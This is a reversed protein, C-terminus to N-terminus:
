ITSHKVANFRPRWLIEGLDDSLKEAEEATIIGYKVADIAKLVRLYSSTRNVVTLETVSLLEDDRIVTLAGDYVGVATQLQTLDSLTIVHDCKIYPKQNVLNVFRDGPRLERITVITNESM